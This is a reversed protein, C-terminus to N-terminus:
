QRRRLSQAIGLGAVAVGVAVAPAALWGLKVADGVTRAEAPRGLDNHYVATLVCIAENVAFAHWVSHRFVWEDRSRLHLPPSTCLRHSSLHHSSLRSDPRFGLHHSRHLSAKKEVCRGCHCPWPPVAVAARVELRAVMRAGSRPAPTRPDDVPQSDGYLALGALACLM